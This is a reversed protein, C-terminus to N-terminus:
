KVYQETYSTAKDLESEDFAKGIPLNLESNDFDKIEIYNRRKQMDMTATLTDKQSLCFQEPNLIIGPSTTSSLVVTLKIKQPPHAINKIKWLKKM